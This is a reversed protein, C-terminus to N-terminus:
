TRLRFLGAAFVYAAIVCLGAKVWANPSMDCALAVLALVSWVALVGINVARLRKVRMPHIFPFPLFSLVVLAAIGAAALWSPPTLLILYFAATNWLAPFGRFYNDVMKMQRDAFYIAGSVVVAIGALAAVTDPLIGARAIAYAPVFVYTLFDVVLDLTDGSWRPLVTAVAFRRALPGDAADVVLAIGLWLFMLSWNRDVAALLALLALAAGSATLLHVAFAGRWPTSSM